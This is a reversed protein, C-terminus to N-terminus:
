FHLLLNLEDLSMAVDGLDVDLQKGRPRESRFEVNPAPVAV